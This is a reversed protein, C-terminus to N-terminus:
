WGLDIELGYVFFLYVGMLARKRSFPETLHLIKVKCNIIFSALGSVFVAFTSALSGGSYFLLLFPM